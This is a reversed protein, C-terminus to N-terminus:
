LLVRHYSHVRALSLAQLARCSEREKVGGDYGGVDVPVYDDRFYRFCVRKSVTPRKVGFM